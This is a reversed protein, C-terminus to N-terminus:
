EKPLFAFTVAALICIFAAFHNWRFKEGFYLFAFVVFVTLTIIEQIIKLQFPSYVSNGWRNAPVQFCYEFFAIGWSVLIVLLLPKGKFKLHGYWAFTMFINSCTLLVIPLWRSSIIKDMNKSITVLNSDKDILRVDKGHGNKCFM